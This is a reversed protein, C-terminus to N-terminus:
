SAARGTYFPTISRNVLEMMDTSRRSYSAAIVICHYTVRYRIRSEILTFNAVGALM